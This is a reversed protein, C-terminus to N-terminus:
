SSKSSELVLVSIQWIPSAMQFYSRKAEHFEARELSLNCATLQDSDCPLYKTESLGTMVAKMTLVSLPFASKSGWEESRDSALKLLVAAWFHRNREVVQPSDLCSCVGESFTNQAVVGRACLRVARSQLIENVMLANWDLIIYNWCINGQVHEWWSVWLIALPSPSYIKRMLVKSVYKRGTFFPLVTM